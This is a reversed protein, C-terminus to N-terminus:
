GNELAENCVTMVKKFVTYWPFFLIILDEVLLVDLLCTILPYTTQSSNFSFPVEEELLSPLSINEM